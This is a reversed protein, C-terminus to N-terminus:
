YNYASGGIFERLLARAPICRTDDVATVADLMQHIRRSRMFADQRAPDDKFEQLYGPFHKFLLSKMVPLEYALASNVVFDVDHIFPIIHKLESRRVYHWHLVTRRPDYSRHISDRIMRRLLRIDYWRVFRNGPGKMQALTEIYLRYKAEAPVSGTMEDYLGHLCDILLIENNALHFSGVTGERKGTKFNYFPPEVTKGELLETLHRNILKLDLAEPTEFDYDGHEDKPHMELDFFYNDMNLLKLSVGEEELCEGLKTTTTTKGSSSPGAVIVMRIQDLNEAIERAAEVVQNEYFENAETVIQPYEGAAIRANLADIAHVGHDVAWVYSQWLTKYPIPESIEHRRGGRRTRMAARKARYAAYARGVESYGQRLLIREVMDQIGEVTPPAQRTYSATLIREVEDTVDRSMQEDHIGQAAGAKYVAVRIKERDYPVEQGDRKLITRLEDIM